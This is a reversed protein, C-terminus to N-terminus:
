HSSFEKCAGTICQTKQPCISRKTQIELQHKTASGKDCYAEYVYRGDRQDCLDSKSAVIRNKTTDIIEVKSSRRISQEWNKTSGDPDKCRKTGVTLADGPSLTQLPQKQSGILPTPTKFNVIPYGTPTVTYRTYNVITFVGVLVIVAVCTVIFVKRIRIM